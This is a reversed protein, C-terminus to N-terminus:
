IKFRMLKKCNECELTKQNKRIKRMKLKPSFCYKCFSKRKEGLRIKYHMALKKIKRVEEQKKTKINEFFDNIKEEAQKKNM